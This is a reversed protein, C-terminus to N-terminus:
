SGEGNNAAENGSNADGDSVRVVKIPEESPMPRGDIQHGVLQVSITDADVPTLVYTGSAAAGDALTQTSKILWDDGSKTWVGDGFSGDSHFSWSRIQLSRPDWGIVQTGERAVGQEDRVVYSRILFSRSPTWRVTTDIRAEDAEDVWHGILWELEELADYPTAPEPLSMEEVCDILWRDSHKVLIASFTAVSPPEGPGGVSTIGEVKAVEPKIMRVSDVSGSLQTGPWEDFVAAIDEAIAARGETREGTDRDVHTANEAWHGRIGDMDHSNFAEVYTSITERVAAEDGLVTLSSSLVLAPLCMAPCIKSM